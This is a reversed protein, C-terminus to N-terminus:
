STERKVNGVLPGLSITFINTMTRRGLASQQSGGATLTFDLDGAASARGARTDADREMRARESM